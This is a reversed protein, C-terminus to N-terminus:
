KVDHNWSISNSMGVFRAEEEEGWGSEMSAIAIKEQLWSFPAIISFLGSLL